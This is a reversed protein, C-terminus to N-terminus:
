GKPAPPMRGLLYFEANPRVSAMNAIRNSMGFFAAIAGIDWIDDTSFGAAILDAHDEAGIEDARECVQLAYGLMARERASLDAKRWNVAVQDAILPNRARIRLIAGHAIVCYQCHNRASTAVVIMEREAKSLGGPREMLADHYDMFARLEEPRHAMALFVNPVFGSKDSILTIRQRLDEPLGAIEAVPFSSIPPASM